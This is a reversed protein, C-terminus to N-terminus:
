GVQGADAERVLRDDREGRLAQLGDLARAWGSAVRYTADRM